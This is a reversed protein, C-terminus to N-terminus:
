PLASEIDNLAEIISVSEIGLMFGSPDEELTKAIGTQVWERVADLKEAPTVALETM